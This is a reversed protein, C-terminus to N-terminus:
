EGVKKSIVVAIEHKDNFYVPYYKVDGTDTYLWPLRGKMDPHTPLDTRLTAQKTEQNYILVIM